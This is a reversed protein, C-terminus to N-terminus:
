LVGKLFNLAYRLREIIKRTVQGFFLFIGRLTLPFYVMAFYGFFIFEAWKLVSPIPYDYLPTIWFFIRPELPSSYINVLGISWLSFFLLPYIFSNISFTQDIFLELKFILIYISFACLMLSLIGFFLSSEQTWPYKLLINEITTTKMIAFIPVYSSTFILLYISHETFRSIGQLTDEKKKREWQYYDNTLIACCHGIRLLIALVWGCWISYSWSIFVLSAKDSIILAFLIGYIGALVALVNIIKSAIDDLEKDSIQAYKTPIQLRSRRREVREYMIIVFKKFFTIKSSLLTIAYGLLGILSIVFFTYNWLKNPSTM